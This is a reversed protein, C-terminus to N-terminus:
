RMRNNQRSRSQKLTRINQLKKYNLVIEQEGRNLFVAFVDEKKIEAKYVVGEDSFRLSFWKAVDKNLTWSLAKHDQNKKVGRYVKFKDPLREYGMLESDDMMITPDCQKFLNILETKALTDDYNPFEMRTWADCLYRSLDERSLYFHTYKLFALLYPKQLIMSFDQFGEVEDIRSKVQAKAKNLAEYDKMFNCLNDKEDIFVPSSFFPHHLIMEGFVPDTVIDLELFSRAVTKCSELDTKDKM